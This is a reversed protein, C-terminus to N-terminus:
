PTGVQQVPVYRMVVSLSAGPLAAFEETKDQYCPGCLKRVTSRQEGDAATWRLVACVAAPPPAANHPEGASLECRIPEM